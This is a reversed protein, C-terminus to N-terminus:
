ILITHSVLEATLGRVHGWGLMRTVLPWLSNATIDGYDVKLLISRQPAKTKEWLMGWSAFLPPRSSVDSSPCHASLPSSVKEPRVSTPSAAGLSARGVPNQLAASTKGFRLPKRAVAVFDRCFGNRVQGLLQLHWGLVVAGVIPVAPRDLTMPRLNAGESFEALRGGLINLFQLGPQTRLNYGILTLHFCQNVYNIVVAPRQTYFGRGSITKPAQDM